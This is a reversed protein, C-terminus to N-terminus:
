MEFLKTIEHKEIEIAGIKDYLRNIQEDLRDIAHELVDDPKHYIGNTDLENAGVYTGNELLAYFGNKGTGTVKGKEVYPKVKKHDFATVLYYVTDGVKFKM